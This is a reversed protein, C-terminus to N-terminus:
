SPSTPSSRDPRSTLGSSPACESVSFSRTAPSTPMSPPAAEASSAAICTTSSSYGAFDNAGLGAPLRCVAQGHAVDVEVGDDEVQRVAPPQEVLDGEPDALADLDRQDPGVAGALGRQQPDDGAVERRVVAGDGPGAPEAHHALEDALHAVLGRHAVQQKGNRRLRDPGGGLREVRGLQRHHLVVVLPDLHAVGLREGVPAVDAAVVGLRQPVDARHGGEAHRVLPRLPALHARQGAALLLPEHQLRQEAARVLHQQEVLRVVVEVHRGLAPELLLQQLRGLRHQEDAM